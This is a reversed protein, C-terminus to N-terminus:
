TRPSFNGALAGGFIMVLTESVMAQFSPFRTPKPVFSYAVLVRQIRNPLGAYMIKETGSEPWRWTSCAGGCPRPSSAESTSSSLLRTFLLVGTVIVSQSDNFRHLTSSNFRHFM